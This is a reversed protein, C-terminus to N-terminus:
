SFPRKKREAAHLFWLRRATGPGRSHFIGRSGGAPIEDRMREATIEDAWATELLEGRTSYGVGVRLSLLSGHGALCGMMVSLCRFMVLVSCAMVVFRCLFMKVAIVLCRRVVGVHGVAVVKVGRVVALVGGAVVQFRV